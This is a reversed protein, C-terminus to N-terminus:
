FIVDLAILWQPRRVIVLNGTTKDDIQTAVQRRRNRAKAVCPVRGAMEGQGHDISLAAAPLTTSCISVFLSTALLRKM